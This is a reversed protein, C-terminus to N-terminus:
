ARRAPLLRLPCAIGCTGRQGFVFDFPPPALMLAPPLVLSNM